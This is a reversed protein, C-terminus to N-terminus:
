THFKEIKISVDHVPLKEDDHVEKRIIVETFSNFLTLSHNQRLDIDINNYSTPIYLIVQHFSYFINNNKRHLWPKM